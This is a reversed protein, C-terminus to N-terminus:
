FEQLKLYKETTITVNRHADIKKIRYLRTIVANDPNENPNIREHFNLFVSTISLFNWSGGFYEFISSFERSIEFCEFFFVGYFNEVNKVILLPISCSNILPNKVANKGVRQKHKLFLFVFNRNLDHHFHLPSFKSSTCASISRKDSFYFGFKKNKGSLVVLITSLDM